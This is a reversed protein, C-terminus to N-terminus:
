RAKFRFRKCRHNGLYKIYIQCPNNVHWLEPFIELAEYGMARYFYNSQNYTEYKGLAITKVQSYSYGLGRALKEYALHLKKGIGQRHYEKIIGMVFIEACAPSTAKLAIFGVPKDNDYVALFPMESADTVYKETAEQIGFWSPLDVLVKRAISEKTVSDHLTIISVTM